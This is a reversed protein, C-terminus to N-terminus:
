DKRHSGLTKKYRGVYIKCGLIQVLIDERAQAFKTRLVYRAWIGWTM